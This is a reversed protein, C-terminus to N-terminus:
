AARIQASMHRDSDVVVEAGDIGADAVLGRLEDPTFAACLSARFMEQQKPTCGGAHRAVLEDVRAPTAPRFLDRVLLAGGPRLVRFAEALFPRPDPIHHLISNSFVADFAADDFELRKADAVQFRIRGAHRSAARHRDAIALMHRSLDVGTVRADGARDCVLLPIHGPGTGIDLMAGRAGLALLRDVFAANPESHDMADYESAEESTDMVEPELTRQLRALTDGSCPLAGYVNTRNVRPFLAPSFVPRPVSVM